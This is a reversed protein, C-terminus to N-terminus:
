SGMMAGLQVTTPYADNADCEFEPLQLFSSYANYRTDVVALQWSGEADAVCAYTGDGNNECPEGDLTISQADAVPTVGDPALLSVNVDMPALNECEEGDSDKGGCAVLSLSALSAVVMWNPM